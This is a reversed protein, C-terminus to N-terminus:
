NRNLNIDGNVTTIELLRGGSGLTGEMRRASPRPLSFDSRITGTVTTARVRGNTNPPISVTINGSAATFRLDRDWNALGITATIEGNVLSAQAHRSTSVSVSGNVGTIFVDSALNEAEVTGNVNAVVFDVGAPVRVTFDVVVDNNRVNM